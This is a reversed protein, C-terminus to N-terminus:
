GLKETMRSFFGNKNRTLFYVRKESKKVSLEEGCLEGLYKGDGYIAMPQSDAFEFSLVSEDSYVIPRSRLSFACIPTLLFSKCDPCLISGGASLSYATSGTPTAVIIGDAAFEGARTGDINVYLRAIKNGKQPSSEKKVVVENLCHTDRGNLSIKLMSRQLVECNADVLLSIAEETEGREFETLFGLTGYNIGVIPIKRGDIARAARLVTGDGGLVLLREVESIEAANRYVFVEAGREELSEKLSSVVKEDKVKEKKYFIGIKM